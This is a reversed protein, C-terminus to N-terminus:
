VCFINKKRKKGFLEDRKAIYTENKPVEYRTM